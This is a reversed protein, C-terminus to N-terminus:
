LDIGEEYVIEVDAPDLILLEDYVHARYATSTRRRFTLEYGTGLGPTEILKVQVPDSWDGLEPLLDTAVLVTVQRDGIDSSV